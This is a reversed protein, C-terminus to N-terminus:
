ACRQVKQEPSGAETYEAIEISSVNTFVNAAIEKPLDHTRPPLSQSKDTCKVPIGLEWSHLAAGGKTRLVINLKAEESTMYGLSSVNCSFTVTVQGGTESRLLGVAINTVQFLRQAPEGKRHWVLEQGNQVSEKLSGMTTAIDLAVPKELTAAETDGKKTANGTRADPPATRNPQARLRPALLASASALTAAALAARRSISM